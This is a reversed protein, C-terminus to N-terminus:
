PPKRPFARTHCPANTSRTQAGYTGGAPHSRFRLSKEVDHQTTFQVDITICPGTRCGPGVPPQFRKRLVAHNNATNEPGHLIIHVPHTFPLHKGLSPNHEKALRKRRVSPVLLMPPLM